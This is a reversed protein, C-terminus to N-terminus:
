SGLGAIKCPETWKLSRKGSIFTENTAQVIGKCYDVYQLEYRNQMTTRGVGPIDYDDAIDVPSTSVERPYGDPSVSIQTSISIYRPYQYIDPIHVDIQSIFMGSPDGPHVDWIFMGYPYGYGLHADM